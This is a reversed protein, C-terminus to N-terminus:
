QNGPMSSDAEGKPDVYAMLGLFRGETGGPQVPSIVSRRTACECEVLRRVSFGKLRQGREQGQGVRGPRSRPPRVPVQGLSPAWGNAAAPTVTAEMVAADWSRADAGMARRLAGVALTLAEAPDVARVTM